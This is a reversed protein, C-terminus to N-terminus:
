KMMETNWLMEALTNNVIGYYQKKKLRACKKCIPTEDDTENMYSWDVCDNCVHDDCEGCVEYEEPLSSNEREFCVIKGCQHCNSINEEYPEGHEDVPEDWNVNYLGVHTVTSGVSGRQDIKLDEETQWKQLVISKVDEESCGDNPYPIQIYDTTWTHDLFCIIVEVNLFKKLSM